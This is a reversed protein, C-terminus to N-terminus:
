RKLEEWIFEKTPVYAIPKIYGKKQYLQIMQAVNDPCSKTIVIAARPYEILNITFKFGNDEPLLTKVETPKVLYSM